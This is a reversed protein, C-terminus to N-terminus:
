IHGGLVLDQFLFKHINRIKIENHKWLNKGQSRIRKTQKEELQELAADFHGLYLSIHCFKCVM